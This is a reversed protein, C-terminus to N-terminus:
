VLMGKQKLGRAYWWLGFAVAIIFVAFVAGGTGSVELGTSLLFNHVFLLTAGVLSALLVPVAAGKRLLLLLCGVLGGWVGIAWMAVVWSPAAYIFELQAPPAASLWAENRSETMYYDLSGFANWLTGLVGIVWFHWPMKGTTGAQSGTM